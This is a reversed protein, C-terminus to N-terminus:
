KSEIAVPVSATDLQSHEKEMREPLKELIQFNDAIVETLWVKESEKDYSRIQLRGWVLVPSGKKLLRFGITAPIGWLIVPIFDTEAEQQDKRRPRSVAVVLKLKSFNDMFLKQEPDRALRGVLTVQNYNFSM